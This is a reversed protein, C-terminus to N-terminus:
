RISCTIAVSIFIPTTMIKYAHGHLGFHEYSCSQSYSLFSLTKTCVLRGNQLYNVCGNKLNQHSLCVCVCVCVCRSGYGESHM